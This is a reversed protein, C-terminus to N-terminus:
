ILSGYDETLTAPETVFGWDVVFDSSLFGWNDSNSTINLLMLDIDAKTYVSDITAKQDMAVDIEAKSYVSSSSAKQDVIADVETKSYTLAANSKNVLFADLESKTYVSSTDAKYILETQLDNIASISAKTALSASFSTSLADLVQQDAKTSILASVLGFNTAIEGSTSAAKTDVYQKTAAQLPSTPNTHLFLPGLMTGGAAKSVRDALQTMVSLSFQPNNAIANALESLTDLAEPAADILQNLQGAVADNVLAGLSNNIYGQSVAGLVDNVGLKVDGTRGAVSTVASTSSPQANAVLGYVETFNKNIKDFGVRLPDGSGDSPSTGINIIQQSM